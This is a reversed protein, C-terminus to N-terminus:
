KRRKKKGFNKDLKLTDIDFDIIRSKHRTFNFTNHGDSIIYGVSGKRGSYTLLKGDVLSIVNVSIVNGSKVSPIKIKKLSGPSNKIM